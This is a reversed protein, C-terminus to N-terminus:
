CSLLPARGGRIEVVYVSGDRDCVPGEPFELGTAIITEDM